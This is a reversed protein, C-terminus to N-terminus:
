DHEVEEESFYHPQGCCECGEDYANQGTIQEFEEIAEDMELGERFALYPDGGYPLDWVVNWGAEELNKWDTKSLSFDGGSHNSSYRIKM